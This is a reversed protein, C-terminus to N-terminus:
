LRQPNYQWVSKPMNVIRWQMLMDFEDAGKLWIHVFKTDPTRPDHVVNGNKGIRYFQVITNWDNNLEVYDIGSVCLMAHLYNQDLLYFRSLDSQEILDVYERFSMFTKRAHRLGNNSWLVLGSNYVKLMGSKTRPLDVGWRTKVLAAWKEDLRGCIWDNDQSHRHEPQFPETCIGVDSDFDDFINADLGSVAFMDADVFLVNDYELFQDDYIPKLSGYLHNTPYGLDTVFRTNDDFLYEAGIRKAYVSINAVSARCQPTVPGDWYQYILNNM